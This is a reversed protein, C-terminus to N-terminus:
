TSRLVESPDIQSARRAPLWGAVGGVVGLILMATLLTAWDYPEIGYLLTVVFKSLWLSAVIGAIVGISLLLAVRSMVLRIVQVPAAGVAVRIGIEARRVSIWHWTVGYLGLGALLLGLGSFFGSLQAVLREQM